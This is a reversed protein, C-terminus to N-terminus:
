AVDIEEDGKFRHIVAVVGVVEEEEGLFELLEKLALDIQDCLIGQCVGKEDLGDVFCLHLDISSCTM